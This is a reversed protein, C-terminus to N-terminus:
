YERVVGVLVGQIRVRDAAAKIVPYKPNAPKLIAQDAELYFRKLTVGEGEVRAAVISGPKLTQVDTEPRLIVIDDPCIHAKIMSDGIVRLAYNGPKNLKEPVSIPEPECDTFSEVVGGAAITGQLFIGKPPEIHNHSILKHSLLENSLLENPNILIRITRAKGRQRDIYGKEQLKDLHNQIPSNSRYGLSEVMHRVSPPYGSEKIHSDLFDLLKRERFNLPSM